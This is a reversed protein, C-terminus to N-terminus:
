KLHLFRVDIGLDELGHEIAGWVCGGFALALEESGSVEAPEQRERQRMMARDDNIQIAASAM